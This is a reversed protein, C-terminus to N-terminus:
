CYRVRSTDMLVRTGDRAESLPTLIRRQMLQPTPLLCTKSRTNSYSHCLGAAAAGIRGRAQSGRYAVPTARFVLFFFFFLPLNSYFSVHESIGM